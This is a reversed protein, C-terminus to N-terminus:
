CPLHFTPSSQATLRFLSFFSRVCIYHGLGAAGRRYLSGMFAANFSGLLQVRHFHMLSPSPVSSCLFKGSVKRSPLHAVEINIKLVFLACCGLALRSGWCKKRRKRKGSHVVAASQGESAGMSAGEGGITETYVPLNTAVKRQQINIAM